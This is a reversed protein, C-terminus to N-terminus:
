KKNGRNHLVETTGKWLSGTGYIYLACKGPPWIYKAEYRVRSTTVARGPFTVYKAMWRNDKVGHTSFININDLLLKLYHLPDLKETFQVKQDNVWTEFQIFDQTRFFFDYGSGHKPFGVWETITEGDNFFRFVADVTYSNELLRITVEESEMRISHHPGKPSASGGMVLIPADNAEGSLPSCPLMGTLLFLLLGLYRM